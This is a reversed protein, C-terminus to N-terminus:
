KGSSVKIDKIGYYICLGDKTVGNDFDEFFVHRLARNEMTIPEMYAISEGQAAARKVIAIRADNEQQMTYTVLLAASVTFAALGLAGATLVRRGHLAFYGRILPDRLVAVAAIIIMAVSSFTARAPFTPAAIMVFNNFLALALMFGAYRVVPFEQWVERAKVKEALMKIVPATLGLQKKVLAYVFFLTLWYIAMEDFGKFLNDFHDITTADTLGIPVLVAAYLIDRVTWAVFGGNFYSAVTLLIFGLMLYQRWGFHLPIHEIREGKREALELKFVRWACLLLLVLPLIYLLMEGNGAFQNGIHDLIGKGDGQHDYRVFNGPAGVLGILGLLAGFAGAPMWGAMSGRRHLYWSIVATLCVVTVALNEVSWGAILGLLFMPLLAWKGLADHGKALTINYPLLFLAAPVASWLYVTSGSKWVAVEGFHPFSLWAFLGAAALIWPEQRWEVSRRAHFYMLVVLATFMLANAIDFAFKGLWLFFNLCFVTFMRGGHLLYHRYASYVTDQFTTVHESTLWILSYDYDDRHLPMLHNLLLMLLFIGLLVLLNRGLYNQSQSM